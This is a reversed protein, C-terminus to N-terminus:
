DKICRVSLGDAKTSNNLRHVTNNYYFISRRWINDADYPTSSWWYGNNGIAGNTGNSYRIGGPLASFDSTNTGNGNNNWGNTSKLQTGQDTGRDKTADAQEQTMGLYIELQKWEADSPLHWGPPCATQAAAWNYLVGYTNYNSTAKAESVNTGNYDYVYCYSETYSGLTPPSVAPLYALNEAMWWQTGIKVTRYSKNDRTDILNGIENTSTTFKWIPGETVNNKDDKAVIKWYYDKGLVLGGPTYNKATQDASVKTTPPYMTGFYVDYTLPDNEPDSCDWSLTLSTSTRTENNAPSLTSPLLPLQSDKICRVSKGFYKPDNSKSLASYGSKLYWYYANSSSYETSTWWGGYSFLYNPYGGTMGGPLGSFGSSNSSGFDNDWGTTAKMKTGSGGILGGLFNDLISWDNATPLHWGTPCSNKAADWNYLVGYTKFNDTAKALAVDTGFFDYVYYYPSNASGVQPLSVAPLYALNEAMWWQNGIKVTKYSRKDKDICSVFEVDIAKSATPTDSVVTTNAESFFTYQIVDGDSYTLTKDTTASKLQNADTILSNLKENGAYSVSSNQIKRGSYVAKYSAQGNSKLISVFYIGAIPFKLNFRHTGPILYQNNQNLLQGNANYLTLVVRQSKDTSFSFTADENSPNPYISGKELKNPLSYIGTTTKVLLLSEGGLLKLVQNTRLNTVRISDIKNGSVKSQFSITLDQAYVKSIFSLLVLLIVTKKM